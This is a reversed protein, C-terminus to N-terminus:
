RCGSRWRSTWEGVVVMGADIAEALIPVAQEGAFAPAFERHIGEGIRFHRHKADAHGHHAADLANDDFSDDGSGGGRGRTNSRAIHDAAEVATLDVVAAFELDHEGFPLGAVLDLQAHQAILFVKFDLDRELAAAIQVFGALWGM